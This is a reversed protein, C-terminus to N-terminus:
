RLSRRAAGAAGGAGAPRSLADAARNEPCDGADARGRRPAGAARNQAIRRPEAGCRPQPRDAAPWFAAGGDGRQAAGAAHRARRHRGQSGRCQLGGPPCQRVAGRARHVGSGLAALGPYRAAAAPREVGGGHRWRHYRHRYFWHEHQARRESTGRHVISPWHALVLRSQPKRMMLLSVMSMATMPAPMIPRAVAKLSASTPRRTTIMSRLPMASSVLRPLAPPKANESMRGVALEPTLD